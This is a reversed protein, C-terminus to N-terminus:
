NPTVYRIEKLFIFYDEEILKIQKQGEEGQYPCESTPHSMCECNSCVQEYSYNKSPDWDNNDRLTGNFEALKRLQVRKHENKDEAIPILLKEIQKSAMELQEDTDATILVHLEEDCAESPTRGEKMSGKGRVAIKTGTSKEMEKQTLGRPGIILGIFNYDPYEKVPIYLKKRKKQPIAKYDSPPKFHPNLRLAENILSQREKMLKNKIRQERTNTRKGEGDYVPEPSPSRKITPDEEDIQNTGLIHNLEEIRIKM